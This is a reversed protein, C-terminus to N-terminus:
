LCYVIVTTDFVCVSDCIRIFVCLICLYMGYIQKDKYDHVAFWYVIFFISLMSFFTWFVLEGFTVIVGCRGSKMKILTKNQTHVTYANKNVFYRLM